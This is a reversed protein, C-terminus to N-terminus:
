LVRDSIIGFTSNSKPYEVNPKVVKCTYWFGIMTNPDFNHTRIVADLHTHWAKLTHTLLKMKDVSVCIEFVKCLFFKIYLIKVSLPRHGNQFWNPEM